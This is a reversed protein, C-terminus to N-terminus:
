SALYRPVSHNLRQWLTTPNHIHHDIRRANTNIYGANNNGCQSLCFIRTYHHPKSAHIEPFSHRNRAQPSVGEADGYPNGICPLKYKFKSGQLHGCHTIFASRFTVPAKVKKWLTNRKQEAETRSVTRETQGNKNKNRKPSTSPPVIGARESGIECRGGVREQDERDM